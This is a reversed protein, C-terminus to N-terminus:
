KGLKSFPVRARAVYEAGARHLQSEYVVAEAVRDEGFDVDSSWVKDGSPASPAETVRAVTLHSKYTVSDRPFGLEFLDGELSTKFSSLPAGGDVGIWLVRPAEPAAGSAVAPFVGYGKVKLTIPALAAARRRVAASIADISEPPVDGVFKVTVHLNAPPVWALKWGLGALRGQEREMAEAIRRTTGVSLCLAIFTRM